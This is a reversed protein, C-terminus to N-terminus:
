LVYDVAFTMWQHVDLKSRYMQNLKEGCEM